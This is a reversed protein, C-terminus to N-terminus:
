HPNGYSKGAEALIEIIDMVKVNLSLEKVADKMNLECFPCASV